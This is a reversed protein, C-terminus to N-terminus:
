ETHRVCRFGTTEDAFGLPLEELWDVGFTYEPAQWSGGISPARAADASEPQVWERANGAMDYSGFPSMGLPFSEAPRAEGLNFAARSQVGGAATGWPYAGEGSGM